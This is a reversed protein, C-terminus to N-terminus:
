FTNNCFHDQKRNNSKLCKVNWVTTYCCLQPTTPDKTVTNNCIKEQNQSHFLKFFVKIDPLTVAYLFQALKQAHAV